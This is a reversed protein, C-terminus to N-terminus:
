PTCECCSKTVGRSESGSAKGHRLSVASCGPLVKAFVQKSTEPDLRIVKALGGEVNPSNEGFIAKMMHNATEPKM